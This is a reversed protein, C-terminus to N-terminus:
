GDFASKLFEAQWKQAKPRHGITMYFEALAALAQRRRMPDVDPTRDLIEFAELLATEAEKFRKLAALSRGHGILAVGISVPAAGEGSRLYGLALAYGAEAKEFRRLSFHIFALNGRIEATAPHAFGYAVEAGRLAEVLPVEALDYERDLIHLYGINALTSITDPHADGLMRRAVDLAEELLPRAEDIQGMELQNIALNNMHALNSPHERGHLEQNGALGAVLLPLAEDRRGQQMYVNALNGQTDLTHPHTLGFVRRRIDLVELLIREAESLRGLEMLMLGLNNFAAQTDEHDMGMVRRADEIAPELVAAAQEYEGLQVHIGGVNIRSSITKIADEELFSRFLSLARTWQVKAERYEGLESYVRGITSRLAAELEPFSEFQKGLLEAQEELAMRLLTTDAGQAVLPSVRDLMGQLYLTAATAAGSARMAAAAESDALKEARSAKVAMTTSVITGALMVLFVAIVGGVLQRNRKAFKRFQYSASAPRALIPEDNLYRRIDAAFEAASPYRRAREKELAKGFITEIDGRFVRSISSLRTPEQERIIQVMQHLMKRELDYPLRDTLLEYGVVGLAYVDSRADLDDVKGSAQEPSMYQITGVLQGMDTSITTMQLDSDTARAVGFDLVKPIGEPTVLINGPKLDRHLVGKYHAYQVADCITALLELRESTGLQHRRAYTTVPVGGEVFEMAFFPRKVGNTEYVGAEHIQAISSHTLKGLVHAEFAFRKLLSESVAEERMVKLAVLRKPSQQEAKYVTGMGGAGLVEIIRYSGIFEPPPVPRATAGAFAGADTPASSPNRKKTVRQKLDATIADPDVPRTNDDDAM